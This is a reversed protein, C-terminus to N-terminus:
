RRGTCLGSCCVRCAVTAAVYCGVAGCLLETRGDLMEVCADDVDRGEEECREVCLVDVDANWARGSSSALTTQLDAYLSLLLSNIASLLPLHPATRTHLEDCTHQLRCAMVNNVVAMVGRQVTKNYSAAAAAPAHSGAATDDVKREDREEAEDDTHVDAPQPQKNPQDRRHQTIRVEETLVEAYTRQVRQLM